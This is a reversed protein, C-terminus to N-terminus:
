KVKGELKITLPTQLESAQSVTSSPEDAQHTWRGACERWFTSVRITQRLMGASTKGHRHDQERNLL